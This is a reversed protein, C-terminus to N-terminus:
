RRSALITPAQKCAITRCHLRLKGQIAQLCAGVENNQNRFQRLFDQYVISANVPSNRLLDM